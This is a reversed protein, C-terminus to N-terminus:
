NATWIAMCGMDDIEGADAFVTDEISHQGCYPCVPFGQSCDGAARNGLIFQKGCDLCEYKTIADETRKNEEIEANETCEIFNCEQEEDMCKCAWADGYVGTIYQNMCCDCDNGKNYFKSKDM